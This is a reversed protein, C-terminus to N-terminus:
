RRACMSGPSARISSIWRRRGEARRISSVPAGGASGAVLDLDQSARECCCDPTGVPCAGADTETVPVCCWPQVVDAPPAADLKMWGRADRCHCSTETLRRSSQRRAQRRDLPLEPLGPLARCGRHEQLGGPKDGAPISMRAEVAQGRVQDGIDGPHSVLPQSRRMRRHRAGARLRSSRWNLPDAEPIQRPMFAPYRKPTAM